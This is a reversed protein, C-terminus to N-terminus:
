CKKILPLVKRNIAAETDGVEVTHLYWDETHEATGGNADIRTLPGLSEVELMEENTFLETNCCFDPYPACVADFKKVFLQGNLTYAAWGQRNLLGCKQPLKATSDQRLQIYKTGWTWRKDAMDTYHWLVVPRAPLLYDSHSRYPEQPIIARGGPAMVSLCWVAAEISWPNTNILRHRVEVHNARADMTIEIQKGIGTTSEADQTLTLTKGDWDYSVPKNDPFYTRPNVEPAHWLRHGGYIRWEKGGTKGLMQKFEKFLNQGGVEGLRIIRPGVDITAILEIKGNTLRLCNKWGGYSVKRLTLRKAM